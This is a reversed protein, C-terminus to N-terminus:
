FLIPALECGMEGSVVTDKNSILKSIGGGGGAAAAAGDTGNRVDKSTVTPEPLSPAKLVKSAKSKSLIEPSVQTKDNVKKRSSTETETENHISKNSQVKQKKSTVIVDADDIAKSNSRGKKKNVLKDNQKLNDKNKEPELSEKSSNNNDISDFNNIINGKQNKQNKKKHKEQNKNNNNINNNHDSNGDNENENENKNTVDMPEMDETELYEDEGIEDIYQDESELTSQKPGNALKQLKAVFFGDMNHVHPYFRRTLMLSPHFRREQYRTFGPKGVQLGTDILKVHRKSLIYQIVQENEETSVSCTSYVIIGGSSSKPDVADVAACLLEKQLHSNRLIDKVTRQLKVSQDRAIVGLGSCPADLLVRDFGRMVGPIKRGDYCCVIANKVGMRHLNAVTAKQRQVKLDNAVITGSNQMLQAIYSTKGGPASSMDLIREGPQPDLAMVPNMSAASQLIYHGALYEPTAGIPVSSETIKIAVKSWQISEVVVGRKSLADMLDKRTTKLTNTRIVLPRPKDSADMFEVCEGPAFIALFLESLEPM